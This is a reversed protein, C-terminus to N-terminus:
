KVMSYYEDVTVGAIQYLDHASKEALYWVILEKEVQKPIQAYSERDALRLYVENVTPGNDFPCSSEGNDCRCGDKCSFLFEAAYGPFVADLTKCNDNVVNKDLIMHFTAEKDRCKKWLKIGDKLVDLMPEYYFDLPTNSIMFGVTDVFGILADAEDESTTMQKVSNSLNYISVALAVKETVNDVKETADGVEDFFEEAIDDSAQHEAMFEGVDAVYGNVESVIGALEDASNFLMDIRASDDPAKYFDTNFMLAVPGVDQAKYLIYYKGEKDTTRKVWMTDQYYYAFEEKTITRDTVELGCSCHISVAIQNEKTVTYKHKGHEPQPTELPNEHKEWLAYFTTDVTLSSHTKKGPTFVNVDSDKIRSWGVFHYGPRQPLQDSLKPKTNYEFTQNTPANCGGNADYRITLETTGNCGTQPPQPTAEEDKTPGTQPLQPTSEADDAPGTQPLQPTSEADDVPGTQPLQPTDEEDDKGLVDDLKDKGQDIKDDIKNKANDVAEDVADKAAEKAGEVLAEGANKMVDKFENAVNGSQEILAQCGTMSFLLVFVLFCVFFKKM